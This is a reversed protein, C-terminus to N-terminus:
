RETSLRITSGDTRITIRGHVDTRLIRAGALAALTEKHPHGFRNDRGAQIAAISPAVSALFDPDSTRSGHHPVKLLTASVSEQAVLSAQAEAQIDGTLLLTVDGYRLRMVVSADNLDEGSYGAPPWLVDFTLEGLTITDGAVTAQPTRVRGQLTRFTATDNVRGGIVQRAVGFRDLLEPLGGMHDEQPHTLVVVDITRDWHAMVDSLQRALEIGSPGGDILMQEGTPATILIADGQGIDLFDIRLEGANRAPLMSIPIVALAFAGLTASALIRRASKRRREIRVSPPLSRPVFRYALGGLFVLPLFLAVTTARGASGLSLTAFPLSAAVSAVTDIYALPYYAALSLWWGASNSVLGAAATFVSLWFAVLLVPQVIVNAFPGVLSLEGFHFWMIPATALSAALSLATVECVWTPVSTFTHRASWRELWHAIWPALTLLGATAAMSLQFGPELADRPDLATMVILAGALAPLGSQPRGIAGGLLLVGAMIGARLVSPAFGAVLLYLAITLAAPIWARKRGVLPVALAITMAAVMSINSGSVAVLHRLGSANYDEKRDMSLNGDRGFAIGAGLSAAPEPLVRQLSRDLALRLRTLNRPPTSDGASLHEVQPFLMTAWIGRQRLYSRYDFGDFVPPEDLVGTLRLRDGPLHEAYQHLTLRVMGADTVTHTPTRLEEIRFEFGTSTRGPDPESAIVGVLEVEQGVYSAVAPVPEDLAASLLMGSALACVVACSALRWSLARRAVFAPAAAVTWAAGMWWPAEFAGVAVIGTLWGLALVILTM